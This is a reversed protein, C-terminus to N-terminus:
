YLYDPVIETRTLYHYYILRLKNASRWAEDKAQHCEKCLPEYSSPLFSFRRCGSWRPTIVLELYEEDCDNSYAWSHAQAGCRCRHYRAKGFLEVLAKHVASSLSRQPGIKEGKWHLCNWLSPSCRYCRALNTKEHASKTIFSEQGCTCRFTFLWRDDTYSPTM